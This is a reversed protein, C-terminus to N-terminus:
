GVLVFNYLLSLKNGVVSIAKTRRDYAVVQLQSPTPTYPYTHQSASLLHLQINDDSSVGAVGGGWWVSYGNVEAPAMALVDFSCTADLTVSVVAWKPSDVAGTDNNVPGPTFALLKRASDPSEYDIWFASFVFASHEPLDFPVMGPFAGHMATFEIIKAPLSTGLDEHRVLVYLSSQSSDYSGWAFDVYSPIGAFRNITTVNCAATSVDLVVTTLTKDDIGFGILSHTMDDWWIGSLAAELGHIVSDYVTKGTHIDVALVMTPFDEFTSSRLSWVIANARDVGVVDQAVYGAGETGGVNNPLVTVSQNSNSFPDINWIEAGSDKAVLAVLPMLEATPPPVPVPEALPKAVFPDQTAEFSIDACQLFNIPETPKNPHYQLRLVCAACARNPLTFDLTLNSQTWQHYASYDPVRALVTFDAESTPDAVEALAVELWGRHGISYHNLNQQFHMTNVKGGMLMKAPGVKGTM